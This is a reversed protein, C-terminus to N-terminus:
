NNVKIPLGDMDARIAVCYPKGSKPAKGHIDVTFATKAM